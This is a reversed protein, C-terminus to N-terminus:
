SKEKLSLADDSAREKQRHAYDCGVIFLNM